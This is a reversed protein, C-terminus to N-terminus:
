IDLRIVQTPPVQLEHNVGAQLYQNLLTKLEENQQNLLGTEEILNQREVLLSYYRSLAKDLARWVSLKQENLVTTMKEWFIREERKIREKKQEETEFNSRKKMRPNGLLEANNAREERRKHFEKLVDIVEDMDIHLQDDDEDQEKPEEEQQNQAEEFDNMNRQQQQEDQKKNKKTGDQHHQQSLHEADNDDMQLQMEQKKKDSVEYFTLVLLEVDDMNDIGLSKRISDIQITFQDKLPKTLSEMMAKDDVLFPCEGILHTFVNKIRTISVKYDYQQGTVVSQDDVFESKSMGHKSSDMISTNPGMQSGGAGVSSNQNADTFGFIPDTPPQWPIGLQQMHIVRDAQIIKNILARVENENMTWIENFRNEDSKEFRKFKNQLEKFQKTFKKYDETLKINEKQYNKSQTEFKDKVTRLIDKNRRDKNKLGSITNSNVKEREKLVKHNFELKEENLRYVAKMDEMCKELIQMEKELKIKQEAQDNADKSRLDELQKAYNEEDDARKRQFHEELKRHEDFLSKVENGNKDLIQDREDNFAKEINSLQDTYDQRMDNFQKRMAKILEDIDDNQRKLSKVYEEDKMKLQEMFLKILNEKQDIIAKCEGKQMDIDKALEECDEKDLLESWNWDIEVNKKHSTIVENQIAAAREKKMKEEQIRRQNENADTNSRIKTITESTDKSMQELFGRAEAIRIDGLPEVKPREIQKNKDLKNM